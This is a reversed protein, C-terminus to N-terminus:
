DAMETKECIYIYHFNAEPPNSAQDLGIMPKPVTRVSVKWGYEAKDIFQLRVNPSGHSIYLLVGGPTLVRSIQKLTAAVNYISGEGCLISDITGKDVVVDFSGDAFKLDRCDMEVFTMESKDKSRENMQKIVVPSFDINTINKVGEDYLEDSLGLKKPAQHTLRCVQAAVAQSLFKARM